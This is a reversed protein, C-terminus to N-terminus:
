MKTTQTRLHGVTLNTQPGIGLSSPLIAAMIIWPIRRRCLACASREHGAYRFNDLFTVLPSRTREANLIERSEGRTPPGRQEARLKITSQEAQSKLSCFGCEAGQIGICQSLQAPARPLNSVVESLWFGSRCILFFLYLIEKDRDVDVTALM